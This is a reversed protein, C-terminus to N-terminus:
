AAPTGPGARTPHMGTSLSPIVFLNRTPRIGRGSRWRQPPNPRPQHPPAIAREAERRVSSVVSALHVDLGVYKTSRKM